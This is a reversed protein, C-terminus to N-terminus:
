FFQNPGSFDFGNTRIGRVATKGDIDRNMVQQSQPNWFFNKNISDKIANIETQSRAQDKDFPRGRGNRISQKRIYEAILRGFKTRFAINESNMLAELDNDVNLSRFNSLELKLDSATNQIHAMISGKIFIRGLNQPALASQVLENLADFSPLTVVSSQKTVSTVVPNPKQQKITTTPTTKQKSTSTSITKIPAKTVIPEFSEFGGPILELLEKPSYYLSRADLLSNQGGMNASIIELLKMVPDNTQMMTATVNGVIAEIIYNLEDATQQIPKSSRNTKIMYPKGTPDQAVRPPQVPNQDNDDDDSQSKEEFPIGGVPTVYPTSQSGPIKATKDLIVQGNGFRSLKGTAVQQIENEDVSTNNNKQKPPQSGVDFKQAQLYGGANVRDRLTQKQSTKQVKGSISQTDDPSPSSSSSSTSKTQQTSHIDYNQNTTQRNEETDEGFLWRKM